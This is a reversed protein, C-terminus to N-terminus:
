HAEDYKLWFRARLEIRIADGLDHDDLADSLDLLLARDVDRPISPKGAVLDAQEKDTASRLWTELVRGVVGDIIATQEDSSRAFESAMSAPGGTTASYVLRPTPDATTTAPATPILRKQNAIQAPTPIPPTVGSSPPPTPVTPEPSPTSAITRTVSADVSDPDFLELGDAARQLHKSVGHPQGAEDPVALVIVQVGHVQAEEVAETLDDDGSVLIIVEVAGNRAHAVMDLGIRLDVGKQEGTFGIRGLRVKVKPLLGIQEQTADPVANRASDYWHVRLLPVGAIEEAQRTLAAILKEHDVSVGSRLSTGTLRTAASALLYGADVYLGCHSRM